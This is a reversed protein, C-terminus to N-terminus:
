FDEDEDEDEVDLEVPGVYILYFTKIFDKIIEIYFREVDDESDAYNCVEDEDRDVYFDTIPNEQPFKRILSKVFVLYFPFNYIFFKCIKVVLEKFPKIYHDPLKQELGLYMLKSNLRNIVVKWDFQFNAENLLHEINFIPNAVDFKLKPCAIDFSNNLLICSKDFFINELNIRDHTARWDLVVEKGELVEVVRKVHNEYSRQLVTGQLQDISGLSSTENITFSLDPYNARIEELFDIYNQLGGGMDADTNYKGIYCGKEKCSTM